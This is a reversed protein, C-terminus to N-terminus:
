ESKMQLRNTAAKGRQLKLQPAAEEERTHCDAACAKQPQNATESSQTL